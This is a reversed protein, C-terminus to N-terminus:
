DRVITRPDEIQTAPRDRPEHVWGESEEPEPAIHSAMWLIAAVTLAMAAICAGFVGIGAPTRMKRQRLAESREDAGWGVHESRGQQSMTAM